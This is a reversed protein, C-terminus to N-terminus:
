IQAMHKLLYLPYMLNNKADELAKEITLGDSRKYWKTYKLEM